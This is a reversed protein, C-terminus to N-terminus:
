NKIFNKECVTQWEKGKKYMKRKLNTFDNCKTAVKFYNRFNKITNKINKIIFFYKSILKSVPNCLLMTEYYHRSVYTLTNHNLNIWYDIQLLEMVTNCHNQM